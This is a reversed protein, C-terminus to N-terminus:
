ATPSRAALRHCGGGGALRAICPLTRIARDDFHRDFLLVCKRCILRQRTFIGAGATSPGYRSALRRGPNHCRLLLSREAESRPTDDRAVKSTRRGDFLSRGTTRRSALRPTGAKAARSELCQRPKPTTGGFDQRLRIRSQKVILHELVHRMLHPHERDGPHQSNVKKVM